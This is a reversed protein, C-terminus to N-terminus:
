KVGPGAVAGLAQGCKKCYKHAPANATGCTVCVVALKTGWGPWFDADPSEAPVASM